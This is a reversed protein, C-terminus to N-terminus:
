LLIKGKQCVESDGRASSTHVQFRHMTCYKNSIRFM